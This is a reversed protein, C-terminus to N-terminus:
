SAAGKRRKILGLAGLGLLAGVTAPEPVTEAEATVLVGDGKWNAKNGNALTGKGKEGLNLLLSNVNTFTQSYTNNNEGAPVYGSESGVEFSTHEGEYETDFWSLTLKEITDKFTFKFTGVELQGKEVLPTIGDMKMAVPRFWYSEQRDATGIDFKLFKVLSGYTNATGAKDVFLRSKTGTSDDELSEISEIIPDLTLYGDGSLSAGLGVNIEGEQQPVLSVASASPALTGITLTSAAIVSAVTAANRFTKSIPSLKM